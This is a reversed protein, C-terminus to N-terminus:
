GLGDVALINLVRETCDRTEPFYCWHNLNSESPTDRYVKYMHYLRWEMKVTM